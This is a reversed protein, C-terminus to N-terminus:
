EVVKAAPLKRNLATISEAYAQRVQPDTETLMALQLREILREREAKPNGLVLERMTLHYPPPPLKKRHSVLCWIFLIGLPLYHHAMDSSYHFLLCFAIVILVALVARLWGRLMGPLYKLGLFGVILVARDLPRSIIPAHDWKGPSTIVWSCAAFFLLVYLLRRWRIAALVQRWYWAKSRGQQFAENLDGTLAEQNVKPGFEELLWAALRPPKASNM